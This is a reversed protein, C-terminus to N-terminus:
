CPVDAGWDHRWGSCGLLFTILAMPVNVFLEVEYVIAGIREPKLQKKGGQLM